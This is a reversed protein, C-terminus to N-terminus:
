HNKRWIAFSGYLVGIVLPAFSAAYAPIRGGQASIAMLNALLMYGFIIIVSLWFGTAAGTRHNRIGLPAGVLGYVLAALPLAIKNWYGYQLNAIQSPSALNNRELQAIREAMQAMSFTDLDSVKAALIDDGTFDAKPVQAPWSEGELKIALNGDSSLLSGGGRIRWEKDNVFTMDKAELVTTWKGNKDFALVFAKKLTRSGIDYDSAIVMAELRGDKYQPMLVPRGGRSDIRKAIEDKIRTAQKAAFPVLTENFGFALLSVALGFLAVPRVIRGVSAGGARVAVIESDSSLRGFALLTGLLMAMAFTKAMVGPLLMATLELVTGFSVGKVVYDTIQFLYTGAMILVTFIAVGFGWPGILEKLVLLDIRKM